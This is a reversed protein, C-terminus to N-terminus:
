VRAGAGTLNFTMSMLRENTLEQTSTAGRIISEKFALGVGHQGARGTSGDVGSCFVRYGAAAIENRGPRRTEQTDRWQTPEATGGQTPRM